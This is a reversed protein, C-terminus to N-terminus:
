KFEFRGAKVEHTEGRWVVTVPVPTEVILRNHTAKVYISGTAVPVKGEIFEMGCFNPAIRVKKAGPEQGSVGSLQINGFADRGFDWVVRGAKNTWCSDPEQIRPLVTAPVVDGFAVMAFAVVLIEAFITIRNM